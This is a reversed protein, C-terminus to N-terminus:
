EERNRWWRVVLGVLVVGGGIILHDTNLTEMIWDLNVKFFTVLALCIIVATVVALIIAIRGTPIPLPKPEVEIPEISYEVIERSEADIQVVAKADELDVDVTFIKKGTQTAKRPTVIKKRMRQLFHLVLITAEEANLLPEAPEIIVSEALATDQTMQTNEKAITADASM